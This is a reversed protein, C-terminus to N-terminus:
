QSQKSERSLRSPAMVDRAHYREQKGAAFDARIYDVEIPQGPELQNMLLFDHASIVEKGNWGTIVDGKQLGMREAPSGPEVKYVVFGIGGVVGLGSRNPIDGNHQDELREYPRQLEHQASHGRSTLISGLFFSVGALALIAVVRIAKM